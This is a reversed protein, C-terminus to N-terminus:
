DMSCGRKTCRILFPATQATSRRAKRSRANEDRSVARRMFDMDSAVPPVAQTASSSRVPIAHASMITETIALYYEEVVNM